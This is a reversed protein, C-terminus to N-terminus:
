ARLYAVDRRWRLNLAQAPTLGVFEGPSFTIEDPYYSFLEAAIGDSFTAVITHRCVGERIEARAITREM